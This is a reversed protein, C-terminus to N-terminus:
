RLLVAMVFCVLATVSLVTRLRHRSDWSSRLVAYNAGIPGTGWSNIEDNIPWEFRASIFGSAAMCLFGIVTAGYSAGLRQHQLFLLLLAAALASLAVRKLYTHPRFTLAEQHVRVGMEDSWKPMAPLVALLCFLQGGAVIASAFVTVFYLGDLLLEM